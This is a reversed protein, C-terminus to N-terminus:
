KKIIRIHMIIMVITIIGLYFPLFSIGTLKIILGFLSPMILVGIFASAMQVGIVAQSKDKGFNIPTSHIISPFLPGGGLGTLVFGILAFWYNFPLLIMIIGIFLIGEGLFIMQNDNLLFTIFGSIGRGITIGIYLLGAFKAATVENLNREIVLFSSAWLGITQEIACYCFCFLMAEKARPLKITRRIGIVENNEKIESIETKEEEERIIKVSTIDSENKLTLNDDKKEKINNISNIEIIEEKIEEGKKREKEKQEKKEEKEEEEEKKEDKEGNDIIEKSTNRNKNWLPLSLFLILCLGFQIFSIIGYGKSWSKDYKLSTSMIFPGISAGLGWMCHLWNMHSSKYYLAVYNNLATDISGAGLGYPIAFICLLIFTHCISFGFMGIATMLVSIFITKGTRLKSIVRESCLSSIVTGLAIITYIIGSYSLPVKLEQYMIPWASGLLSDPLGLSIFSLYIVVLLLSIM